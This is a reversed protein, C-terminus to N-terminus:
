PSTKNKALEGVILSFIGGKADKGAMTVTLDQGDSTAAFFTMELTGGPLKCSQRAPMLEATNGHADLTWSCGNDMIAIIENGRGQSFHISGTQASQKFQATGNTQLYLTNVVNVQSKLDSVGYHWLGAFRQATPYPNAIPDVKTRAGNQLVFNYTGTPLYSTAKLVEQEHNGQVTVKWYYINYASNIVHNYCYQITSTLELSNGDVKFHWTCGQDTHGIVGNRERSFTITGIQPIGLNYGANITAVNVMAKTNPQNYNWTGTYKRIELRTLATWSLFVIGALVILSVFIRRTWTWFKQNKIETM